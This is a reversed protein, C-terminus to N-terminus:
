LERTKPLEKVKELAEKQAAAARELQEAKTLEDDITWRRFETGMTLPIVQQFEDPLTGKWPVPKTPDHKPNQSLEYTPIHYITEGALILDVNSIPQMKGNKLRGFENVHKTDGQYMAASYKSLWDGHKVLIRGDDGISVRFSGHVHGGAKCSGQAPKGCECEACPFLLPEFTKNKHSGVGGYTNWVTESSSQSVVGCIKRADLAPNIALYFGIVNSVLDEASFGSNLPWYYWGPQMTEFGLSVEMFIALAVSKKQETPLGAKVWYARWVSDTALTKGGIFPVRGKIPIRKPVVLRQSQEYRVKFGDPDKKSRMGSETTISRLLGEAGGPLMHGFDLWGCRCSYALRGNEIDSFKTM